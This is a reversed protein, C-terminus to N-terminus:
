MGRSSEVLIDELLQICLTCKEDQPYRTGALNPSTPTCLPWVKQSNKKLKKKRQRKSDKSLVQFLWKVTRERHTLQDYLGALGFLSNVEGSLM